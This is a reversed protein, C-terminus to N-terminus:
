GDSGFDDQFFINGTTSIHVTKDRLLLDTLEEVSKGNRNAVVDIRDGLADIAAQGSMAEPLVSSPFSSPTTVTSEPEPTPQETPTAEGDSSSTPSVESSPTASDNASLNVVGVIVLAVIAVALAGATIVAARPFGRREINEAM